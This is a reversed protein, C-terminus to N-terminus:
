CERTYNKYFIAQFTLRAVYFPEFSHLDTISSLYRMHIIGTNNLGLQVQAGICREIEEKKDMLEEQDVVGAVTSKMVLELTINWETKLRAQEHTYAEGEDFFQVAPLEHEQFDALHLRMKKYSVTKIWTLTELRTQLASLIEKQM